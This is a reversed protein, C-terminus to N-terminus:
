AIKAIRQQLNLLADIDQQSHYRTLEKQLQKFNAASIDKKILVLDKQISKTLARIHKRNDARLLGDRKLEHSYRIQVTRFHFSQSIQEQKAQIFLVRRQLRQRSSFYHSISRFTIFFVALMGAMLLLAYASLLLASGLHM